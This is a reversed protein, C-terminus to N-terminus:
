CALTHRYSQCKSKKDLVDDLFLRDSPFSLRLLFDAANSAWRTLQGIDERNTLFNPTRQLIESEIM